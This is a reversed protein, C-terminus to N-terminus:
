SFLISSLESLMSYSSFYKTQTMLRCRLVFSNELLADLMFKLDQHLTLTLTHSATERLSEGYAQACLIEFQGGGSSASNYSYCLSCSTGLPNSYSKGVVGSILHQIQFPPVDVPNTPASTM